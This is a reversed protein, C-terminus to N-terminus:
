ICFRDPVLFTQMFNKFTFKEKSGTFLDCNEMLSLLPIIQATYNISSLLM